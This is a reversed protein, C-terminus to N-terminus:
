GWDMKVYKCPALTQLSSVLFCILSNLSSIDILIQVIWSGLDLELRDLIPLRRFIAGLCHDNLNNIFDKLNPEIQDLPEQIQAAVGNIPEENNADADLKRKKFLIQEM